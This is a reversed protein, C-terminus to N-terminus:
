DTRVCYLKSQSVDKYVEGASWFSAEFTPFLQQSCLHLMLLDFHTRDDKDKTVVPRRNSNKLLTSFLKPQFKINQSTQSM